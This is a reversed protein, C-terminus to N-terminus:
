DSAPTLSVSYDADNLNVDGGVCTSDPLNITAEARNFGFTIGKNYPGPPIPIVCPPPLLNHQPDYGYFYDSNAEPLVGNGADHLPDRPAESMYLELADDIENGVGIMQGGVPISDLVGPYRGNDIYFLQLAARIQNMDQIRKADRALAKSDQMNGLVVSALTGIITIVVLLEILTFGLNNTSLKM